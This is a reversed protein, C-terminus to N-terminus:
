FEYKFEYRKRKPESSPAVKKLLESTSPNGKPATSPPSTRPVNLSSNFHSPAQTQTRNYVEGMRASRFNNREIKSRTAAETRMMQEATTRNKVEQRQAEQQEQRQKEQLIMEQRRAENEEEIQKQRAVEEPSPGKPGQQKQQRQKRQQEKRHEDERKQAAQLNANLGNNLEELRKNLIAIMGAAEISLSLQREYEETVYGFEGERAKIAEMAQQASRAQNEYGRIQNEIENKKREYDAKVEAVTQASLIQSVFLALIIFVHKKM